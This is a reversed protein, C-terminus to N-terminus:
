YWDGGEVVSAAGPISRSREVERELFAKNYAGETMRDALRLVRCLEGKVEICDGKRQNEISSILLPFRTWISWMVKIRDGEPLQLLDKATPQFVAARIIQQSPPASETWIGKLYSGPAARWLVYNRAYFDIALAATM